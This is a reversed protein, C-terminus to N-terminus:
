PVQRLLLQRALERGPMRGLEHLEEIVVLGGRSVRVRVRDRVRDRVTVTVTVTVTVRVRLRVRDRVRVRVRVLHRTDKPM